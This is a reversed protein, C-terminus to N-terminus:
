AILAINLGSPLIAQNMFISITKIFNPLSVHFTLKLNCKLLNQIRVIWGDVWRGMWGAEWWGMAFM